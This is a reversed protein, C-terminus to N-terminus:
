DRMRTPIFRKILVEKVSYRSLVKKPSRFEERGDDIPVVVYALVLTKKVGACVRNVTNLWRWSRREDSLTKVLRGDEYIPIVCIAFEAHGGVPGKSGYLVWDSCFKVGSRVVWGLSRFHHYAVYSIIFPNDSRIREDKMSSADRSARVSSRCFLEWMELISLVRTQDEEESFVDLSGLGFTLFFAEENMLQLHELNKIAQVEDRVEETLVLSKNKVNKLPKTTIESTIRATKATNQDVKVIEDDTTKTDAKEDPPCSCESEVVEQVNTIRSEDQLDLKKKLKLKQIKQDRREIRRKATLEEATLRLQSDDELIEVLRRNRARHLWTPESRSLSGKGFFGRQWLFFMTSADEIWVSNSIPEYAGRLKLTQQKSPRLIPILTSLFSIPESLNIPLLQSYINGTRTSRIRKASSHPQEVRRNALSSM